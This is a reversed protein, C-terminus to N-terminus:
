NGENRPNKYRPLKLLFNRKIKILNKFAKSNVLNGIRGALKDTVKSITILGFDDSTCLQLLIVNELM